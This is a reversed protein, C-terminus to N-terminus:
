TEAYDEQNQLETCKFPKEGGHQNSLHQQFQRKEVFSMPCKDCKYPKDTNHIKVHHILNRYSAFFKSCIECKFQQQDDAHIKLHRELIKTNPFSKSCNPCNLFMKQHIRKLHADLHLKKEFDEGCIDCNFENRKSDQCHRRKIHRILNNQMTFTESCLPCPIISSKTGSETEEGSKLKRRTKSDLKQTKNKAKSGFSSKTGPWSNNNVDEPVQSKGDAKKGNIRGKASM